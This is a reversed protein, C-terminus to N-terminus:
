EFITIVRALVEVMVAPPLSEVKRGNRVNLDLVRPQDCRVKYAGDVTTRGRDKEADFQLRDRRM